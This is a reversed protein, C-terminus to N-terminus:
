PLTLIAAPTLIKEFGNALKSCTKGKLYIKVVIEM